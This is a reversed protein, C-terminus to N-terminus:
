KPMCHTEIIPDLDETHHFVLGNKIDWTFLCDSTLALRPAPPHFNLNDINPFYYTDNNTTHDHYIPKGRFDIDINVGNSFLGDFFEGGGGRETQFNIVFSTADSLMNVRDNTDNDIRSRTLSDELEDTISEGFEDLKSAIHQLKNFAPGITSIDFKPYNTNGIRLRLDQYNINRYVTYEEPFQPCLISVDTVNWLAQPSNTSIGDSTAGSPFASFSTQQTPWVLTNEKLWETLRDISHQKLKYGYQISVLRTIRSSVLKLETKAATTQIKGSWLTFSDILNASTGCQSFEHTYTHVTPIANILDQTLKGALMHRNQALIKPDVQCYVFGYNDFFLELKLNGILGSPFQDFSALPLFDNYPILFEFSKTVRNSNKFDHYYFLKGCISNDCTHVNKWLSYSYKANNKKENAMYTTHLFSERIAETHSCKTNREGCSLEYRNVYHSAAKLGVFLAWPVQTYDDLSPVIGSVDMSNIFTQPLEVTIEGTGLIFSSMIDSVVHSANTINVITKQNMGFPAQIDHSNEMEISFERDGDNLSIASNQTTFLNVIDGSSNLQRNLKLKNM